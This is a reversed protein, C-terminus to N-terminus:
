REDARKQALGLREVPGQDPPPALVAVPRGRNTIEIAEGTEVLRLLERLRQRFEQVGVSAM